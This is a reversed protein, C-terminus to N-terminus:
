RIGHKPYATWKLQMELEANKKWPTPPAASAVSGPTQMELEAQVYAIQKQIQM